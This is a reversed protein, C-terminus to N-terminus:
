DYLSLLQQYKGTFLQPKKRALLSGRRIHISLVTQSFLFSHAARTCGEQLCGVCLTKSVDASVPISGVSPVPRDAKGNSKALNARTRNIETTGNIAYEKLRRDSNRKCFLSSRYVQQLRNGM